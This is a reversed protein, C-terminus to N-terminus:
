FLAYGNLDLPVRKARGENPANPWRKKYMNYKVHAILCTISRMDQVCFPTKIINSKSAPAKESKDSVV